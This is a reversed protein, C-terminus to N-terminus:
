TTMFLTWTLTITSSEEVIVSEQIRNKKSESWSWKRPVYLIYKEEDSSKNNEYWREVEVKWINFKQGLWFPPPRAKALQTTAGTTVEPMIKNELELKIVESFKVARLEEKKM